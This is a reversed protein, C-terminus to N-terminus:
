IKVKVTYVNRFGNQMLIEKAINSRKGTKCYLLLIENKNKIENTLNEINYFPINIANALHNAKYEEPTRVDILLAKQNNFINMTEELSLDSKDLRFFIKEYWRM